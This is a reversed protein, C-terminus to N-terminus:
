SKTARLENEDEFGLDHDFSIVEVVRSELLKIPVAPTAVATWTEDPAPRRLDHLFVKVAEDDCPVAETDALHRLYLTPLLGRVAEALPSLVGTRREFLFM